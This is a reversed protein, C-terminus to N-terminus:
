VATDIAYRVRKLSRPSSQNGKKNEQKGRARLPIWDLLLARQRGVFRLLHM